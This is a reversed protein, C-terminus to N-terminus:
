GVGKTNATSTGEQQLYWSGINAGTDIVAPDQTPHFRLSLPGDADGLGSGFWFM